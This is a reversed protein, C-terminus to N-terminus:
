ETKGSLLSQKRKEQAQEKLSERLDSKLRTVDRWCAIEELRKERNLAVVQKQLTQHIKGIDFNIEYRRWPLNFIQTRTKCIDKDIQYINIDRIQERERILAAIEELSKNLFERKGSLFQALPDQLHLSYDVNYLPLQYTIFHELGAAIEDCKGPELHGEFNYNKEFSNDM